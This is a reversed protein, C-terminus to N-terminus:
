TFAASICKSGLISARDRGAESKELGLSHFGSRGGPHEAQEPRPPNARSEPRTKKAEELLLIRETFSVITLLGSQLAPLIM